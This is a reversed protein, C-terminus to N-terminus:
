LNITNKIDLPATSTSLYKLSATEFSYTKDDNYILILKENDTSVNKNVIMAGGELPYLYREEPGVITVKLGNWNKFKKNNTVPFIFAKGTPTCETKDDKAWGWNNVDNYM